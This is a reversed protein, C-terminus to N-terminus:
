WCRVGPDTLEGCCAEPIGRARSEMGAVSTEERSASVAGAM